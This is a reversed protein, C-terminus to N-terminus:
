ESEKRKEAMKAIRELRAKIKPTSIDSLTLLAAAANESIPPRKKPESSKQDLRQYISPNIKVELSILRAYGQARLQSLINLRDYDIKMKISASAAELLLHGGKLNAARCNEAMGRPLIEKLTANIKIIENTHSQIKGFASGQILDQTLTPRHDRM